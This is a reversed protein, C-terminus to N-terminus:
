LSLTSNVVERRPTEVLMLPHLWPSGPVSQIQRQLIKKAVTDLVVTIEMGTDPIEM